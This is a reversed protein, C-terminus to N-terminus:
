KPPLCRRHANLSTIYIKQTQQELQKICSFQSLKDLRDKNKFASATIQPSVRLPHSVRGSASAPMPEGPDGCLEEMLLLDPEVIEGRWPSLQM